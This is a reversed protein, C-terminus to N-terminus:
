FSIAFDTKNGTGEHEKWEFDTLQVSMSLCKDQSFNGAPGVLVEMCILYYKSVLYYWKEKWTMHFEENVDYSYTTEKNLVKLVYCHTTFM